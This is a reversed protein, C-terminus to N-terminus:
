GEPTETTEEGTPEGETAPPAEMTDAPQESMQPTDTAPNQKKTFLFYGAALAVVVLAIWVYKM